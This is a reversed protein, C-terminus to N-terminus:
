AGDRWSGDRIHMAAQNLAAHIGEGYKGKDTAARNLADIYDAISAEVTGTVPQAALAVRALEVAFGCAGLTEDWEAADHEQCIDELPYMRVETWLECGLTVMLAKAAQEITVPQAALARHTACEESTGNFGCKCSDGDDGDQYDSWDPGHEAKPAALHAIVADTVRDTLPGMDQGLLRAQVKEPYNSANWLVGLIASRLSEREITVPEAKAADLAAQVARWILANQYADSGLVGLDRVAQYAAENKESM